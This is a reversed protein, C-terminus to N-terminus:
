AREDRIIPNLVPQVYEERTDDYTVYTSAIRIPNNRIAFTSYNQVIGKYGGYETTGETSRLLMKGHQLVRRVRTITVTMVM